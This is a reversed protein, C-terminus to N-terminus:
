SVEKILPYRFEEDFVKDMNVYVSLTSKSFFGKANSFVLTLATWKGYPIHATSCVQAFFSLFFAIM